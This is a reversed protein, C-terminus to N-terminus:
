TLLKTIIQENEIAIVTHTGIAEISLAACTQASINITHRTNNIVTKLTIPKLIKIPIAPNLLITYLTEGSKVNSITGTLLTRNRVTKIAL